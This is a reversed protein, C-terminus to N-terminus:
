TSIGKQNLSKPDHELAVKAPSQHTPAAAVARRNVVAL